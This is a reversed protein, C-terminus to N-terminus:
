MCMYSISRRNLKDNNPERLKLPTILKRLRDQTIFKLNQPLKRQQMFPSTGALVFNFLSFHFGVDVPIVYPFHKMLNQTTRILNWLFDTVQTVLIGGPSLASKARRYFPESYLNLFKSGDSISPFDLILVDFNAGPVLMKRADDSVIEAKKHRLADKTLRLMEPHQDTVALMLPDIEYLVAKGLQPHKVVERLALGDGGGAIGVRRLRPACVMAPHVLMEHYIHEYKEVFQWYGDLFLSLGMPGKTLEILQFASRISFIPQGFDFTASLNSIRGNLVLRSLLGNRLLLTARGRIGGLFGIINDLIRDANFFEKCTFIDLFAKRAEPWTHISIHSEGIITFATVGKPKFKHSSSKIVRAGMVRALKSCLRRMAAESDLLQPNCDELDLILHYGGVLM